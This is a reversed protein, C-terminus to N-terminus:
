LSMRCVFDITALVKLIQLRMVAHEVRVSEDTYQKGAM